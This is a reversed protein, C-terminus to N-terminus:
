FIAGISRRRALRLMRVPRIAPAIQKATNAAAKRSSRYAGMAAAAADLDTALVVFGRGALEVAIARGLGSGAGTVVAAPMPEPYEVGHM